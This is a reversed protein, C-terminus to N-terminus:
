SPTNRISEALALAPKEFKIPTLTPSSGVLSFLQGSSNNCFNLLVRWSFTPPVKRQADSIRSSIQLILIADLSPSYASPFVRWCKHHKHASSFSTLSSYIRSAIKSRRQVSMACRARVAESSETSTKRVSSSLSCWFKGVLPARASYAPWKLHQSGKKYRSALVSVILRM